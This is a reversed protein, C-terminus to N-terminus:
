GLRFTGFTNTSQMQTRFRASTGINVLASGKYTHTAGAVITVAGAASGTNIIDWDFSTNATMFPSVGAQTLTGTPLTLSVATASTVELM